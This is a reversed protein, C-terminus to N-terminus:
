KLFADALADLEAVRAVPLPRQRFNLGADAHAVPTHPFGLIESRGAPIQGLAVGVCPRVGPVHSPRSELTGLFHQALASRALTGASLSDPPGTRSDTSKTSM